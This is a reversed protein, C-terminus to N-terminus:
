GKLWIELGSVSNINLSAQCETCDGTRQTNPNCASPVMGPKYHESKAKGHNKKTKNKQKKLNKFMLKLQAHHCVGKIM